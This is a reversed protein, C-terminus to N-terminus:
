PGHAARERHGLGGPPHPGLRQHHGCLAGCLGGERAGDRHDRGAAQAVDDVDQAIAGLWQRDGVRDCEDVGCGSVEGLHASLRPCPACELDCGGARM